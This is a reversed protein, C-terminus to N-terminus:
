GMERIVKACELAATRYPYQMSYRCAKVELDDCKKAAEEKCWAVAAQWIDCM